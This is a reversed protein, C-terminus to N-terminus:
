SMSLAACSLRRFAPIRQGAWSVRLCTSCAARAAAWPLSSSPGTRSARCAKGFCDIHPFFFSCWGWGTPSAWFSSPHFMSHTRRWASIDTSGTTRCPTSAPTRNRPWRGRLARLAFVTRGPLAAHRVSLRLFRGHPTRQSGHGAPSVLGGVRQGARSHARAHAPDGMGVEADAVGRAGTGCEHARTYVM